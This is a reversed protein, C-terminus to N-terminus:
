HLFINGSDERENDRIFLGYSNHRSKLSVEGVEQRTCAKRDCVGM